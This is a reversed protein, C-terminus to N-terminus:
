IKIQYTKDQIKISVGDFLPVAGGRGVAIEKGNPLTALWDTDTQNCIGWLGPHKQSEIVIGVTQDFIEGIFRSSLEKSAYLARVTKGDDWLFPKRTKQHCDECIIEKDFDRHYKYFQEGGCLPCVFVRDILNEFCEIWENERVRYGADYLGTTFSREFLMKLEGPYLGWRALVNCDVGKAPRNSANQPDFVFVPSEAYYKRIRLPTLCACAHVAKGELPHAVFFLMFLIVALSYLDSEMGAHKKGLVVEPAMYRDKGGM